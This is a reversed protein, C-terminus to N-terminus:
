MWERHSTTKERIRLLYKDSKTVTRKTLNRGCSDLLESLFKETTHFEQVNLNRAKKVSLRHIESESIALKDSELISKNSLVPAKTERPSGDLIQSTFSETGIHHFEDEM